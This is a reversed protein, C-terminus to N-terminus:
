LSNVSRYAPGRPVDAFFCTCPASRMSAEETSTRLISATPCGKATHGHAYRESRTQAKAERVDSSSTEYGLNM